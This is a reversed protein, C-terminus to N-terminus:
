VSRIVVPEIEMKTEEFDNDFSVIKNCEFKKAIIIHLADVVSIGNHELKKGRSDQKVSGSYKKLLELSEDIFKGFAMEDCLTPSYTKGTESILGKVIKMKPLRYIKEIAENTKTNWFGPDQKGKEVYLYRLVKVVEMLTVTSIIGEYKGDRVGDIFSAARGQTTFGSGMLWAVFVSSDFYVRDIAKSM